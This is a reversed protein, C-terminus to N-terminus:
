SLSKMLCTTTRTRTLTWPPSSRGRKQLLSHMHMSDARQMSVSQLAGPWCCVKRAAQARNKQRQKTTDKKKEEEELEWAEYVQAHYDCCNLLHTTMHGLCAACRWSTTWTLCGCLRAHSRSWGTCRPKSSQLSGRSSSWRCLLLSDTLIHHAFTPQQQLSHVKEFTLSSIPMSLLYQFSASEDISEQEDEEGAEPVAVAAQQKQLRECMDSREPPCNLRTQLKTSVKPSLRDFGMQDLDAEIAAKKRNQVKLRGEVVALIFRVKNDYIRMEAEAMQLM